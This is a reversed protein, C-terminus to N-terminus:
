QESDIGLFAFMTTVVVAGLGKLFGKGFQHFLNPKNEGLEIWLTMSQSIVLEIAQQVRDGLLDEPNNFSINGVISVVFWKKECYDSDEMLILAGYQYREKIGNKLLNALTPYTDAIAEHIQKDSERVLEDCVHEFCTAVWVSHDDRPIIYAFISYNEDIPQESEIYSKTIAIGVGDANATQRQDIFTKM